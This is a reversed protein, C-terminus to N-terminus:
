KRGDVPWCIGNRKLLPRLFDLNAPTIDHRGILRGGIESGRARAQRPALVRNMTFSSMLVARQAGDKLLPLDIRHRDIQDIRGVPM